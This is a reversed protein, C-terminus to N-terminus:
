PVELHGTDNWSTLAPEGSAWGLTCLAAPGLRLRAAFDLPRELWRAAVARLLHGHAFLAVEHDAARAWAVVRDARDTLEATTEGGTVGDRWILWDAGRRRRIEESDLGEEAGYDWEQLLDWSQARDGFGALECTERARALPSTRIEADPLGSWPARHLREGLRKAAARGAPLLPVDTRGTHRGSVSWATEGHRVLLVRSAM